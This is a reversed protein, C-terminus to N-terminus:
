APGGRYTVVMFVHWAALGTVMFSVIVHVPLWYRMYSDRRGPDAIATKDLCGIATNLVWLVSLLCLLGYGLSRQHLLLLVPSLAGIIRHPLELKKAKDFRGRARLLPFMWQWALVGLVLAGTTVRWVDSSQLASWAEVKPTLAWLCWLAVLWLGVRSWLREDDSRLRAPPATSGDSAVLFREVHVRRNACGGASLGRRALQEFGPPGCVFWDVDAHRRALGAFEEPSVLTLSQTMATATTTLDEGGDGSSETRHIELPVGRQACSEVLLEELHADSTQLYATVMRVSVAASAQLAALAPTAGVGAVVFAVQREPRLRAFADGRPTSVRVLEDGSWNSLLDSMRGGRRRRVLFVCADRREPSSVITYPRSVWGEDDPLSLVAHQGPSQLDSFMGGDAPRATVRFLRASLQEVECRCPTGGPDGVRDTLAQM